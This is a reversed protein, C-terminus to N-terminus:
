ASSPMRSKQIHSSNLRTSKRDLYRDDFHTAVVAIFVYSGEPITYGQFDFTKAAYRPVAPAITYLRLTEKVCNRLTTMGQLDQLVPIGRVYARDIEDRVRNLLPEHKLLAYLMSACIRGAYLYGNAYPLHANAARDIENFLRGDPYKARAVTDM